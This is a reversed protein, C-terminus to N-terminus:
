KVASAVQEITRSVLSPPASPPLEIRLWTM